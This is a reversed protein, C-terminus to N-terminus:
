SHTSPRCVTDIAAPAVLGQSVAAGLSSYESGCCLDVGANLAKAAAVVVNPTFHHETTM